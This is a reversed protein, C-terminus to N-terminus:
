SKLELEELTPYDTYGKVKNGSYFTGRDYKNLPAKLEFRKPLDPNSLFLRGYAILDAKGSAIAANGEERTYGGATIVTGKFANRFPELTENKDHDMTSSRSEVFHCYLIDQKNLAEALYVGLEVQDCAESYETYPSFRFGVRDAGIEEAVAQVIELANRCANQQIRSDIGTDDRERVLEHGVLYGHAGHIEVGDFGASIANRAAARFKQVLIRSEGESLRARGSHWIQCFFIAGKDHVAKVVPKWAEVQELSFIGPVDCYESESPMVQAPEGVLLGGLSGRQGYYLKTAPQPVGGTCRCRTMPAHVIRHSLRFPGLQYPTLLAQEVKNAKEDLDDGVQKEGEDEVLMWAELGM